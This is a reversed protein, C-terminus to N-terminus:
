SALAVIQDVGAAEDKTVPTNLLSTLTEPALSSPSSPVRFHSRGFPLGIGFTDTTDWYAYCRDSSSCSPWSASRLIHRYTSCTNSNFGGRTQLTYSPTRYLAVIEAANYQESMALRHLKTLKTPVDLSVGLTRLALQIASAAPLRGYADGNLLQRSSIVVYSVLELGVQAVVVDGRTRGQNATCLWLVAEGM